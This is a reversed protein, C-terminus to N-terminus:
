GQHLKSQCHNLWHNLWHNPKVLPEAAQGLSEEAALSDASVRVPASRALSLWQDDATLYGIDAVYDRDAIPIPVHRDADTESVDFQLVSHPSKTDAALDTVDDLRLKLDQGGQQQLEAKHAEPTEWYAYAQEASRPTLIIRSNRRRALGGALLGAGAIAAGGAVIPAIGLAPEAIVPEAVVPEAVVPEAVVPNAIAPEAVVPNAIAPEAVVPNAIAPEAVVPNAIAPDSTRDASIVSGARAALPTTPPPPASSPTRQRGKMWWVLGGIGLVLPLLLWWDKQPAAPIAAPVAAPSAAAVVEPSAAPSASETAAPTTEAPTATTAPSAAGTAGIAGVAGAASAAEIAQQNSADTAFGLFAQVAPSAPNKYVYTLAQSFPYAPNTPLTKHMPVIRVDKRNLVQDAIAYGIGDKGLAKVVADTTDETVQTTNAGTQFPAKQFVPYNDFASRTDSSNPRDILQIAGSAGGSAAGLKSWDTLEGRFIRAFQDFTIDGRFPSDPNVFVAIKHRAIPVATLGQAKEADTLPRGIAALDIKGDLVSKLAASTGSYSTQVQTGAYQQEFRPKLVQNISELSTSGDIKVITDKAVSDPLKFNPSVTPAQVLLPSAKFAAAQFKPVASLALFLTLALVSSSRRHLM